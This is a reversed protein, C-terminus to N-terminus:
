IDITVRALLSYLIRWTGEDYINYQKSFLKM